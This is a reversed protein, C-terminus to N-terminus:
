IKMGVPFALGYHVINKNEHINQVIQGYYEKVDSTRFIAGPKFIRLPKKFPNIKTCNAYNGGLKGYKVM